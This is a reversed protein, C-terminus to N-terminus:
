ASARARRRQAAHQQRLAVGDAAQRPALERRDGVLHRVAEAVDVVVQHPQGLLRHQELVADGADEVRVQRRTEFRSFWTIFTSVTM